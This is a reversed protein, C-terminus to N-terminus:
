EEPEVDVLAAGQGVVQAAEVHVALVTGAVAATLETEMKMSEVIVLVQGVEVRDGIGVLVQVIKGPMESVLRPGASGTEEDDAHEPDPLLLTHVKGDLFVWRQDGAGAVYLKRSGQHTTVLWAGTRDQRVQLPIDQGDMVLAFDDGDRNVDVVVDEDNSRFNLQVNDEKWFKEIL